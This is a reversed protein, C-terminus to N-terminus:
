ATKKAAYLIVNELLDNMTKGQDAFHEHVKICTNGCYYYLCGDEEIAYFSTNELTPEPEYDPDFGLADEEFNYSDSENDSEDELRYIEKEEKEM